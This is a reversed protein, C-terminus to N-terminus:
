MANSWFNRNLGVNELSRGQQKNSAKGSNSSAGGCECAPTLHQTQSPNNTPHHANYLFNHHHAQSHNSSSSPTQYESIPPYSFTNKTSRNPQNKTNNNAHYINNPQTSSFNPSKQSQLPNPSTPAIKQHYYHCQPAHLSTAVVPNNTSPNNGSSSSSSLFQGLGFRSTKRKLIPASVQRNYIKEKDALM